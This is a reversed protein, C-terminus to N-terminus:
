MSRTRDSAPSPVGDNANTREYWSWGANTVNRAPRTAWASPSSIGASRSPAVTIKEACLRGTRESTSPDCRHRRQMAHSSVHRYRSPRASVASRTAASSPRGRWVIAQCLAPRVSSGHHPGGTSSTIASRPDLPAGATTTQEAPNTEQVVQIDLRAPDGLLGTHTEDAGLHRVGVGREDPSQGVDDALM